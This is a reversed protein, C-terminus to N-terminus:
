REKAILSEGTSEHPRDRATDPLPPPPNLVLKELAAAVVENIRTVPIIELERRVDEPIDKLDAENRAPLIIRHIGARHAALVKEKIGGVPFVLGSLTIEGTMATDPRVRRGTFLSALASTITVGASPGDKPIAGAPVHLHVGYDKFMAPDIGFEQAHAWLYSRAARASEQMVEGLQGTITFGGSGGPLLTAEIFLLVGGMDTWAMGTAVGAPLEKRAEEPYFHPPGLFDEIDKADVTVKDTQGQAIKLAVKRALRGITRELQRVGAERTYRSSILNIAEDTIELQEPTLGNERVQRPVLYRRAIQLKERDSYGALQIVEMRDRLAPPIPGLQNATAIFFCKSLDFPLDLYHDTFSNNQEPDLIELLAASPDGRYDAGLKDIEDLMMVPNNVASRRISQIIRGPMAGVYTRRHGRLEAEDRVGGLSLREFHRGMARAISRGLSTKGVGPPGVFCLIPSKADPRLKIVALFELIREKVDQIDYHDEDLVKQAENLDLRDESSTKWPLELIFDLYTRIVHYDPAMSPLKEMRGLEREAEKRVDDPLDAKALRERLQTAEAQEGSEDDGLEKQIAKMQQRLVYDRQAKDMETQAENAIKSRLRIIEVEHALFDHALHMLEDVTNAELMQQEKDVGLNLISGLFYALRVPDDASLVVMRVEPPVQPLYALAQQILQQVNRKAAEVENINKVELDPLIEVRARLFPERGVWELVRIRDAGQVILHMTDDAREMRKIMVLTGVEYLDEAAADGDSTKDARVSICALLKEESSLAAEVAAMSAPRGVALPVMTEPFLTTNQLPLVPIEFPVGDRKTPPLPAEPESTKEEAM